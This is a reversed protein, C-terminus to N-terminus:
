GSGEPLKSAGHLFTLRELEPVTRAIDHKPGHGVKVPLDDSSRCTELLPVLDAAGIEDGEFFRLLPHVTVARAEGRPLEDKELTRALFLLVALDEFEEDAARPVLVGSGRARGLDLLDTDRTQGPLDLVERPCGRRGGGTGSSETNRRRPVPLRM